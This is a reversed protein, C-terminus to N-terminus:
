LFIEYGIQLRVPSYARHQSPQHVKYRPLAIDRHHPKGYM